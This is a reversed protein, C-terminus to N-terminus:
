KGEALNKFIKLWEDATASKRFTVILPEKHRRSRLTMEFHGDKPVYRWGTLDRPGLLCVKETEKSVVAILGRQEDAALGSAKHHHRETVTFGTLGDFRRFMEEESLGKRSAAVYLALGLGAAAVIFIIVAAM